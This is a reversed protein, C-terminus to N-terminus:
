LTQRQTPKIIHTITIDIIITTIIRQVARMDRQQDM